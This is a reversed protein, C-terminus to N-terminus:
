IKFTLADVETRMRNINIKKTFRMRNINNIILQVYSMYCNNILIQARPHGLILTSMQKLFFVHM